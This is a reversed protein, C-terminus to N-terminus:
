FSGTTYLSVYKKHTVRAAEMNKIVVSPDSNYYDRVISIHEECWEEHLANLNALVRASTPNTKLSTYTRELRRGIANLNVYAPNVLTVRVKMKIEKKGVHLIDPETLLLEFSPPM